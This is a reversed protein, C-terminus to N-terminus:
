MALLPKGLESLVLGHINEDHREPVSNTHKYLQLTSAPVDLARNDRLMIKLADVTDFHSLKLSVPQNIETGQIWCYLTFIDSM